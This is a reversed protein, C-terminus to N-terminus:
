RMITGFRERGGREREREKVCVYERDRAWERETQGM